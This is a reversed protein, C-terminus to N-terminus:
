VNWRTRTSSSSRLCGRMFTPRTRSHKRLLRNGGFRRDGKGPGFQGGSSGRITVDLETISVKLGLSAYDAIAKDLAPM